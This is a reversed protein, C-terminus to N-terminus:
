PRMEEKAVIDKTSAALTEVAPSASYSILFVSGVTATPPVPVALRVMVAFAPQCTLASAGIVMASVAGAPTVSGFAFSVRASRACLEFSAARKSM